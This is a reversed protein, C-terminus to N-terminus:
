RSRNEWLLSLQTEAPVALRHTGRIEKPDRLRRLEDEVQSAALPSQSLLVFVREPGPVADLEISDPSVFRQDAEISVSEAGDYPVYVSPNGGADISVILLYPLKPHDVEFRLRDGAQLAEGDEVAFVHGQRVAFVSLATEGKIRTRASPAELGRPLLLVLAASLALTPVLAWPSAFWRRRRGSRAVVADVTRPLVSRQFRGLAERAEVQQQRCSECGQLHADLGTLDVGPTGLVSAEIVWASPHPSM